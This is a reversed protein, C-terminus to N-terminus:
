LPSNNNKNNNNNNNNNDNNNNNNRKTHKCEHTCNCNIQAAGRGFRGRHPSVPYCYMRASWRQDNSSQTERSIIGGDMKKPVALFRRANLMWIYHSQKRGDGWVVGPCRWLAGPVGLMGSM